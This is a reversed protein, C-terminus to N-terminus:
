AAGANNKKEQRWGGLRGIAEKALEDDGLEQTLHAELDAWFADSGLKEQGSLRPQKASPAVDESDSSERKIGGSFSLNSAQQDSSRTNDDQAKLKGKGKNGVQENEPGNDRNGGTSIGASANNQYNETGNEVGKAADDRARRLHKEVEEKGNYEDDETFLGPYLARLKELRRAKGTGTEQGGRERKNGGQNSHPRDSQQPAFESDDSDGYVGESDDGSFEPTNPFLEEGDEPTNLSFDEGEDPSSPPFGKGDNGTEYDREEEALIEPLEDWPVDREFVVIPDERKRLDERFPSWLVRHGKDELLEQTEHNVLRERARVEAKEWLKRAARYHVTRIKHLRIWYILNLEDDKILHKYALLSRQVSWPVARMQRGWARLFFGRALVINDRSEVCEIWGAERIASPECGAWLSKCKQRTQMWIPSLAEDIADQIKQRFYRPVNWFKLENPFGSPLQSWAEIEQRLEKLELLLDRLREKLIEGSDGYNDVQSFPPRDLVRSESARRKSRLPM